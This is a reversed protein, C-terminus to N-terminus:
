SLWIANWQWCIAPDICGSRLM